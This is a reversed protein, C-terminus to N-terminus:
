GCTKSWCATAVGQCIVLPPAPAKHNRGNFETEIEEAPSKSSTNQRADKWKFRPEHKTPIRTNGVKATPAERRCDHTRMPAPARDAPLQRLLSKPFYIPLIRISPMHYTHSNQDLGMPLFCVKHDTVIISPSTIIRPGRLLVKSGGSLASGALGNLEDCPDLV